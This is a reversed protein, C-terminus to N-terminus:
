KGTIPDLLRIYAVYHGSNLNGAHCCVGYLNYQGSSSSSKSKQNQNQNSIPKLFEKINM